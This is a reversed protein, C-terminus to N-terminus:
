LYYIKATEECLPDLITLLKGRASPVRCFAGAVEQRGPDSGEREADYWGGIREGMSGRSVRGPRRPFIIAIASDLIVPYNKKRESLYLFLQEDSHKRM